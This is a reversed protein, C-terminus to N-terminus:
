CIVTWRFSAEIKISMLDSHAIEKAPIRLGPAGTAPQNSVPGLGTCFIQLVTDGPTAPNSANVLQNSADLIAGQGAGMANTTFIAPAYTALNVTQAASRQGDLSATLNAQPQGAL